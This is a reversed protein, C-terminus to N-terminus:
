FGNFEVFDIIQQKGQNNIAKYPEDESLEFLPQMTDPDIGCELAIRDNEATKGKYILEALDERIYLDLKSQNLYDYAINLYDKNDYEIGKEVIKKLVYKEMRSTQKTPKKRRFPEKTHSIDILKCKKSYNPRQVSYVFQCNMDNFVVVAFAFNIDDLTMKDYKQYTNLNKVKFEVRTINDANLGNDQFYETIYSKQSNKLEASKNYVELSLNSFGSGINVTELVGNNDWRARKLRGFDAKFTKNLFEQESDFAVDIRNIFKFQIDTFTSKFLDIIETLTKSYFLYNNVKILCCNPAIVPTSPEFM